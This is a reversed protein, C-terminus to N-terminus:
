FYTQTTKKFEFEVLTKDMKKWNQRLNELGNFCLKLFYIKETNVSKFITFFLLIYVYFDCVCVLGLRLFDIIFFEFYLSFVSVGEQLPKSKYVYILV